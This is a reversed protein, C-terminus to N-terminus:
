LGLNLGLSFAKLNPYTLYTGSNDKYDYPNYLNLPNTGTAFIKANSIGAARVWKQPLTYALNFSSVRITTSSKFWFSSPMNNMDKWYPNPYAANPNDPTWHDAWFAPRNSYATAPTRADSEISGQGGWSAGMVVNLSLTKYTVGWNFGVSYHNDTKKTLYDQDEDNIKGDPKTYEGSADKPGRVDEYYLSGLEPKKGNITYGPNDALFQDLQEQTRFMGAYHYGFFGRDSSFGTGERYTGKDGASVDMKIMKNDNWQFFTSINYSLDKTINDRWGASLEYGFNAATGWNETPLTYGILLSVSSTLQTLMNTRYDYFGDASFSLRNNLFKADIGGNYKQVRDWQVKPNDIAVDSVIALGRDANGGFVPAQGTVINYSKLWQYGKTADTGLDGYSARLKLFTVANLANRFFPEESIVWGASASWYKGWRNQPAFSVSGDTRWQLQLIYKSAYNYDLRGLYALRGYESQSETATNVGTAWRTNALGGPIVGEVAGRIGDSETEVQEYVGLLGIQHRGFQRDYKVMTNLQYGYTFSPNLSVVDGNKLSNKKLVDGGWIHKHNGLMTFSYLDYYTAYQKGFTANINKNFNVNASLGKVFPVEYTLQGQFNLTAPKSQTFAGSNQIAFPHYNDTVNGGNLSILIPLGDVFPPNFQSAQTLINYDNDLKEGGIKSYINKNDGLAGSLSFGAKLGTALKIDTSARFTYKNYNLGPFNGNQTQYTFGAFYTARDSGGSVNLAHRTEFAKQWGMDLWDYNHDKFYELEDSTYWAQNALTDGKAAIIMDNLLTAQQYGNMMKPKKVMDTFGFSGSYNIKPGGNKGRKTKVIVVGNAGQIGYIAAAADKLVSLSEVESPDLLNFDDATRVIDDIIYLVGIRPGDKALFIPNRVTITPQAGPRAYGGSVSVGPMQGRLISGLSNTQIDEVKSLDTTAVSGTLHIKKQSGYGVVIVDDLQSDTRNLQISITPHDGVKIEKTAFGVSSFEISQEPTAMVRYKGEKDTIANGATGKVTVTVGSIPKGESDTVQGTVSRVQAFGGVTILLLLFFSLSFKKTLLLNM